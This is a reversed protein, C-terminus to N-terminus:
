RSSLYAKAKYLLSELVMSNTYSTMQRELCRESGYRGEYWGRDKDYLAEIVKMLQQTYDTKWLVWMSFATKNFCCGILIGSGKIMLLIGLNAMQLYVIM